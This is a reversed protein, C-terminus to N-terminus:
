KTALAYLKESETRLKSLIDAYRPDNVLNNQEHPDADLDYDYLEEIVPDQDSYKFHKYREKRVGRARYSQQKISYAPGLAAGNRCTYNNISRM